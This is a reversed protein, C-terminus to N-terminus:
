ACRIDGQTELVVGRATEDLAVLALELRKFRVIPLCQCTVGEGNRARRVGIQFGTARLSQGVRAFGFPEAGISLMIM